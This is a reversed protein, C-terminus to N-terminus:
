TFCLMCTASNGPRGPLVIAAGPTSAWSRLTLWGGGCAKSCGGAGAIRAPPGPKGGSTVGGRGTAGGHARGVAVPTEHISASASRVEASSVFAAPTSSPECGATTGLSGSSKATDRAVSTIAHTPAPALAMDITADPTRGPSHWASGDKVPASEDPTPTGAFGGTCEFLAGGGRAGLTCLPSGDGSSATLAGAGLTPLLVDARGVLLM